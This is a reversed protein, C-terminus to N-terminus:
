TNYFIYEYPYALLFKACYQGINIKSRQILRQRGWPPFTTIKDPLQLSPEFNSRLRLPLRGTRAEVEFFRNDNAYPGGFPEVSIPAIACALLSRHVSQGGSRDVYVQM